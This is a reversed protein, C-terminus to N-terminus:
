THGSKVQDGLREDDLYEEFDPCSGPHTSLYDRGEDLAENCLSAGEDSWFDIAPESGGEMVKEIAGDEDIEM